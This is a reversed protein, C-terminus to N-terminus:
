SSFVSFLLLYLHAASLIFSFTLLSPKLAKVMDVSSLGFLRCIYQEKSTCAKMLLTNYIANQINADKRDFFLVYPKTNAASIQKALGALSATVYFGGVHGIMTPAKEDTYKEEFPEIVKSFDDSSCLKVKEGKAIESDFSMGNSELYNIFSAERFRKLDDSKAM